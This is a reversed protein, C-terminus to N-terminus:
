ESTDVAMASTSSHLKGLASALAEAHEVALDKLALMQEVAADPDGQGDILLRGHEYTRTAPRTAQDIAQGFMQALQTLEGLASYSHSPYTWEESAHRSSHNFARIQEAASSLNEVPSTDTM